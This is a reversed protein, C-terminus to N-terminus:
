VRRQHKYRTPARVARCFCGYDKYVNELMEMREWSAAKWCILM